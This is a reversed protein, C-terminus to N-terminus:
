RGVGAKAIAYARPVLTRFVLGLRRAALLVIIIVVDKSM